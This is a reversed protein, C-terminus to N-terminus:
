AARLNRRRRQGVARDDGARSLALLANAFREVCRRASNGARAPAFVLRQEVRDDVERFKRRDDQAVEIGFKERKGIFHQHGYHAIVLFIERQFIRAALQQRVEEGHQVGVAIGVPEDAVAVLAHQAGAEVVGAEEPFGVLLNRQAIAHLHQLRHGELFIQAAVEVLRQAHLPQAAQDAFVMRLAPPVTRGPMTKLAPAATCLGVQRGLQHLLEGLQLADDAAQVRM